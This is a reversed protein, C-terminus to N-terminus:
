ACTFRQGFISNFPLCINSACEPDFQCVSGKPKNKKAGYLTEDFAELKPTGFLFLVILIILAGILIQNLKM